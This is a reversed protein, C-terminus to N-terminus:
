RGGRAAVIAAERAGESLGGMRAEEEKRAERVAKEYHVHPQHAKEQLAERQKLIKKNPQKAPITSPDAPLPSIPKHHATGLLHPMHHPM